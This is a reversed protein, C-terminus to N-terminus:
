AAKISLLYYEKAMRRQKGYANWYLANNNIAIRLEIEERINKEINIAQEELIVYVIIKESEEAINRYKATTRNKDCMLVDFRKNFMFLRRATYRKERNVGAPYEKMICSLDYSIEDYLDKTQAVELMQGDENVMVWVGFTNRYKEIKNTRIEYKGEVKVIELVKEKKM